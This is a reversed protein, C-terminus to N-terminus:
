DIYTNKTTSQSDSIPNQCDADSFLNKIIKGYFIVSPSRHPIPSKLTLSYSIM